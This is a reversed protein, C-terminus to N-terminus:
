KKFQTMHLHNLINEVKVLPESTGGNACTTVRSEWLQPLRQQPPSAERLLPWIMEQEWVDRDRVATLATLLGGEVDAAGVVEASKKEEKSLSTQGIINILM